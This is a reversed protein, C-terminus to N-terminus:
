TVTQFNVFEYNVFTENSDEDTWVNLPFAFLNDVLFLLIETSNSPFQIEIGLSFYKDRKM